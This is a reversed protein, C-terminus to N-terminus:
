ERKQKFLWDLVDRNAYPAAWSNHGVGEYETYKPKGGSAKLADIMQRSRTVKVATDASGHFCWIPIHNFSQAMKPDGGGCVPIAAAFTVPRRQLADWTGFGGMSLGTVYVRKADISFETQLADLLDLSLKMAKSPVGPMDHADAGWDVEVWRQGTPCQPAIVFAPHKQMVDDSAFDTMAHVLQKKNDDGREGAGHLFLVLPYQKSKDYDKPKLIRYKLVGREGGNYERAEYRDLPEDASAFAATSALFVFMMFIKWPMLSRTMPSQALTPDSPQNIFCSM